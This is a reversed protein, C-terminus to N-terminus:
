SRDVVLPLGANPPQNPAHLGLRELALKWARAEAHSVHSRVIFLRSGNPEARWREVARRLADLVEDNTSGPAYVANLQNATVGFGAAPTNLHTTLGAPWYYAFAYSGPRDVVVVDNPGANAVIYEAQDRAVEEGINLKDIDHRAGAFFAAAAVATLLVAAPRWWRYVVQVLAAFGIAAVALTPVLLFHSTRQDLFPYKEARAVVAMEIWLVVFAIVVAHAHLRALAVLGALVLAALLLAPMAFSHSLAVLRQWTTQAMHWPTGSLYSASWYRHLPENTQPIILAAYYAIVGIGAIAGYVLVEVVRRGHRAILASGLLGAFAAITVFASTSSLPLVVVGAVALWWVPRGPPRDVVAAVTFVVLACFGDCTYQKLDNRVLAFPALMVVFASACAAFRAQWPSSWAVVRTFVYAMVVALVAFMLVVLRARQMGSGPVLRLLADFGLPTTLAIAHVRSWPVRLSVAVWAEDLWYQQSLMAHVPHVIVTGAAAALMLIADVWGWRPRADAPVDTALEETTTSASADAETESTAM